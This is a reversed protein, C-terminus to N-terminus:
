PAPNANSLHIAEIAALVEDSLVVDISDINEKLQELSTAGILNSTVFPRSNVFALALHVPSIGVEKALEVYAKAAIEIPAKSYRTFRDFLTLRAKEPRAGNLYKGSLVGFALPSYALLGINEYRSFESLGIDYIRNLLSYPNQISVIRPLALREAIRLFQSVGWPTENSVGIHRIKGAKVFDALVTLTEEISAAEEDLPAWEYGLQGFTNAPRDPWHLQYLDVYDTQLRRLSDDLALTLNARDFHPKGNRIHGPRNGGVPGSAKTALIIQERKGSRALWSGIYRETDGQTDPAPPVPYMEATDIFNIGRSLAYDLQYHADSQTNQEGWTMTGLGILSINVDSNGLRRFQM